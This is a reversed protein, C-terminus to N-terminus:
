LRTIGAVAAVFYIQGQEEVRGLVEAVEPGSADSRGTAPGHSAIKRGKGMGM